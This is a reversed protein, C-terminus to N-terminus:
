LQIEGSMMRPLLLDRAARLKNNQAVLNTVQQCIPEAFLEFQELLTKPPLLIESKGITAPSLETQNTAGIGMTSFKSEWAMVAMGFYYIPIGPKPRVITVHTDVTCNEVPMNVQAIRGLTGEGTSNVLVDGIQVQREPGFERNQNRALNLNLRGDRICKQNIVLGEAGDDYHPTIGRKLFSTLDILPKLIWGQPIGKTIPTHERGPFRFRVFWEQYLLRASQELLDMRRRNNEIADDYAVVLALTRKQIDPNPMPLEVDALTETELKKTGHSAETALERIYERRAFLAYFLFEPIVEPKCDFAKLDQNFSVERKTIAVRFEKALSMGRVVALVTNEPILKSGDAAGEATVRLPTDYIRMEKMEGSSVWPIDGAWFDSRAKSPTGGSLFKACDGLRRLPWAKKRM